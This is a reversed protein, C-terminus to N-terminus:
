RKGVRKKAALHLVGTVEFKEFVSNVDDINQLSSEVVTIGSNLRDAIGTSLDDLVVVERRNFDCLEVVHAGIYGAGGTILWAM